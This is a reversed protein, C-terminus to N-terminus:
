YIFFYDNIKKIIKYKVNFFKNQNKKNIKYFLLFVRLLTIKHKKNFTKLYNKQKKLKM